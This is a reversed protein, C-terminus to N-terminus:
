LLKPSAKREMLKRDEAEGRIKEKLSRTILKPVAELDIQNKQCHDIITDMLSQKGEIARKEIYVSFDAASQFQKTIILVDNLKASKSM